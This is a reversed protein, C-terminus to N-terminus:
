VEAQTENVLYLSGTAYCYPVKHIPNLPSHFVDNPVHEREPSGMEAALDLM